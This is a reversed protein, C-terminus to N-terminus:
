YRIIKNNRKYGVVKLNYKHLFSVVKTENSSTSCSAIFIAGTGGAASPLQFMTRPKIYWSHPMIFILEGTDIDEFETSYYSVHLSPFITIEHQKLIEVLERGHANEETMGSALEIDGTTSCLQQWKPYAILQDLFPSFLILITVAALSFLYAIRKLITVEKQANNVFRKFIWKTIVFGLWISFVLWLGAMGIVFLGLM